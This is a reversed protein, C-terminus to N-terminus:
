EGAEVKHLAATYVPYKALVDPREVTEITGDTRKITLTLKADALKKM